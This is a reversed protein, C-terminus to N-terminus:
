TFLGVPCGLVQASCFFRRLPPFFSPPCLLSSPFRVSRGPLGFLSVIVRLSFSSPDHSAHHSIPSQCYSAPPATFRPQPFGPIALCPCCSSPALLDKVVRRFQASFMRIRTVVESRKAAYVSVSGNVGYAWLVEGTTGLVRAETLQSSMTAATFKYSNKSHPTNCAAFHIIV